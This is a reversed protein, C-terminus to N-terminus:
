VVCVGPDIWILPAIHHQYSSLITDVLPGGPFPPTLVAQPHADVEQQEGVEAEVEEQEGEVEQQQEEEVELQANDEQADFDEQELQPQHVRRRNTPRAELERRKRESVTPPRRRSPGGGDM